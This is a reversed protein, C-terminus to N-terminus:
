ESTITLGHKELFVHASANFSGYAEELGTELTKEDILLIAMSLVLYAFFTVIVTSREGISEEGTFYQVTLSLM